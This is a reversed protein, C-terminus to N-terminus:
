ECTLSFPCFIISIEPRLSKRKDFSESRVPAYPQCPFGGTVITTENKDYLQNNLIQEKTLTKIDEHIPVGSWHYSLVKQCFKDIECFQITRWNLWRGALSFGGIGSFLDIQQM